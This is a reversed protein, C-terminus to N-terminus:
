WQINQFIIPIPRSSNQKSNANESFCLIPPPTACRTSIKKPWTRSPTPTQNQATTNEFYRGNLSAARQRLRNQGHKEILGDLVRVDEFACNMGQGYFPVMAHASDGLLLAKGDINWPWCKMTGLNGTPNHFFDETLHRCSRSPTPSNANSFTWYQDNDTLDEFSLNQTSGVGDASAAAVRRRLSRSSKRALFLTCTFSGDFNPLAIMMFKHRPWIHLANKEILSNAPEPGPPIHLEKYGHELFVESIQFGAVSQQMAHRVASGAGDTAIVTDGRMTRGNEFIM